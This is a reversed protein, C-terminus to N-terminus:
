TSQSFNNGNKIEDRIRSAKEYEENEVAASQLMQGLEDLSYETFSTEERFIEDEVPEDQRPIRQM